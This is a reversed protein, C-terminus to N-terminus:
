TDARTREEETLATNSRSCPLGDEGNHARLRSAANMAVLSGCAPCTRLGKGSAHKDWLMLVNADRVVDLRLGDELAEQFAAVAEEGREPAGVQEALRALRELSRVLTKTPRAGLPPLVALVGRRGGAGGAARDLTTSWKEGPPAPHFVMEGEEPLRDWLTPALLLAPVVARDAARVAHVQRTKMSQKRM